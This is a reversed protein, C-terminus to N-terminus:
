QMKNKYILMAYIIYWRFFSLVRLKLKIWFYIFYIFPLLANPPFAPSSPLWDGILESMMLWACAVALRSASAPLREKAKAQASPLGVSFIGDAMAWEGGKGVAGWIGM